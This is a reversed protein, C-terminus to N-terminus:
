HHHEEPHAGPHGGPHPGPHAAAHGAPHAVHSTGYHPARYEHIGYHRDWDGHRDRHWDHYWGGGIGPTIVVGPNIVTPPPTVAGSGVWVGPNQTLISDAVTTRDETYMQSVWFNLEGPNPPRGVFDNYLATIFGQPTSGVKEYFEDSGLIGALVADPAAGENLEDVWHQIGPDPPRGLYTSYWNSVLSGPDGYVQAQAASAGLSALLGASVLIFQRM